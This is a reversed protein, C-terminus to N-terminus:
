PGGLDYRPALGAALFATAFAFPQRRELRDAVPLWCVLALGILVWVTVEIFRLRGATLSDPPGIIKNLLVKYDDTLVLMLAIWVMSPLAIWAITTRLHRM